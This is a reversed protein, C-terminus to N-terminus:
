LWGNKLQQYALLRQKLQMQDGTNKLLAYQFDIIKSLHGIHPLKYKRACQAISTYKVEKTDGGAHSVCNREIYDVAAELYAIKQAERVVDRELDKYIGEGSRKAAREPQTRDPRTNTVDSLPTREPLLAEALIVGEPTITKGNISDHTRINNNWDFM